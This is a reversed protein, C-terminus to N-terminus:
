CPESAAIEFPISSLRQRWRFLGSYFMTSREFPDIGGPGVGARRNLQATEEASPVQGGALDCLWSLFTAVCPLEVVDGCVQILSDDLFLVHDGRVEPRAVQMGGGDKSGVWIESQM